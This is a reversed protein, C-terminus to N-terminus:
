PIANSIEPNPFQTADWVALGETILVCKRSKMSNTEVNSGNVSEEDLAVTIILATGRAADATNEEGQLAARHLQTSFWIVHCAVFRNMSGTCSLRSPAGEERTDCITEPATAM